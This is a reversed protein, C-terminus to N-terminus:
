VSFSNKRTPYLFIHDCTACRNFQRPPMFINAQSFIQELFLVLFSVQSFIQTPQLTNQMCFKICFFQKFNSIFFIIVLQVYRPKFQRPPMFNNAQSFIQEAFLVLSTYNIVPDIFPWKTLFKLTGHFFFRHSFHSFNKLFLLM